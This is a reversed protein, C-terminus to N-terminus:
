YRYYAAPPAYVAPTLSAPYVAERYPIPERYVAERSLPKRYVAERVVPERYVAEQSVPERYLAERSVVERSVPERHVSYPDRHELPERYYYDDTPRVYAYPVPPLSPPPLALSRLPLSAYAERRAYVDQGRPINDDRQVRERHSRKWDRLISDDWRVREPRSRKRDRPISDDRGVREHRPRKRDRLIHDDQSVRGSQSTKRVRSSSPHEAEARIGEGYSKKRSTKGVSQFLKCLNKV